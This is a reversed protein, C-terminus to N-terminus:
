YYLDDSESITSSMPSWMMKTLERDLELSGKNGTVWTMFFIVLM